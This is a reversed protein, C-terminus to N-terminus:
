FLTPIPTWFKPRLFTESSTELSKTEFFTETITEFFPRPLDCIELYFTLTCEIVRLTRATSVNNELSICTVSQFSKTEYFTEFATEFFNPRVVFACRVWSMSFKSENLM